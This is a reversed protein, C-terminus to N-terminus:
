HCLMMGPHKSPLVKGLFNFHLGRQLKMVSKTLKIEPSMESSAGFTPSLKMGPQSFTLTQSAEGLLTNTDGAAYISVKLTIETPM